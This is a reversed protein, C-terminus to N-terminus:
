KSFKGYLYVLQTALFSLTGTVAIQMMEQSVEEGGAVSALIAGIFSVVIGSTRIITKKRTSWKVSRLQKQWQMFTSTLMPTAAVIIMELM